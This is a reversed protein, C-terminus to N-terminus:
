AASTLRRYGLVTGDTDHVPRTPILLDPRGPAALAITIDVVLHVRPAPDPLGTVHHYAVLAVDYARHAHHVDAILDLDVPALQAPDGTPEIRNLLEAQDHEGVVDPTDPPYLYLTEATLNVIM